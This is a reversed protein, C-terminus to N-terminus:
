FDDSTGGHLPLPVSVEAVGWKRSGHGRVLWVNYQQIASTVLVIVCGPLPRCNTSYAFDCGLLRERSTNTVRYPLFGKHSEGRLRISAKDKGKREGTIFEPESCAVVSSENGKGCIIDIEVCKYEQM